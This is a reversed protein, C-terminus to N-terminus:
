KFKMEGAEVRLPIFNDKPPIVSSFNGNYASFPNMAQNFDLKFNMEDAPRQFIIYRGNAFTEGRSTEDKFPVFLQGPSDAMEPLEQDRFVSLSVVTGMLSFTVTGYKMFDKKDGNSMELTVASQEEDRSMRAFVKFKPDTDFYNLGTFNQKQESTLPSDPSNTFWDNRSMRSNEALADLIAHRQEDSQSLGPVSNAIAILSILVYVL